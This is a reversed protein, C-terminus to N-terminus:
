FKQPNTTLCPHYSISLLHLSPTPSLYAMYASNSINLLKYTPRNSISFRTNLASMLILGTYMM